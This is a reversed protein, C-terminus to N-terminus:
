DGMYYLTATTKFLEEFEEYFDFIADRFRDTLYAWKEFKNPAHEHTISRETTGESSSQSSGSQERLDTLGNLGDNISIYQNPTNTYKSTGTDSGSGIANTQVSETITDTDDVLSFEPIEKLKLYLKKIEANYRHIFHNVFEQWTAFGIDRYAYFDLLGNQIDAATIEEDFYQFTFNTGRANKFIGTNFIRIDSNDVIGQGGLLKDVEQIKIGDRIIRYM